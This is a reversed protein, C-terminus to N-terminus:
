RPNTETECRFSYSQFIHNFKFIKNYNVILQNIFECAVELYYLNIYKKTNEIVKQADLKIYSFDVNLNKICSVNGNLVDYFRTDGSNMYKNSTAKGIENISYLHNPITVKFVESDLKEEDIMQYESLHWKLGNYLRLLRTFAIMPHVLEQNDNKM